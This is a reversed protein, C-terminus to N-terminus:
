PDAVLLLPLFILHLKTTAYPLLDLSYCHYSPEHSYTLTAAIIPLAM